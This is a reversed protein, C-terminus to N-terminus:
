EEPFSGMSVLQRSYLGVSTSRCHILLKPPNAFRDRRADSFPRPSKTIMEEWLGTQFRDFNPFRPRLLKGFPM